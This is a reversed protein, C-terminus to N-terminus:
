SRPLLRSTRVRHQSLPSNEPEAVWDYATAHPLGFGPLGCEHTPQLGATLDHGIPVYTLVFGEVESSCEADRPQLYIVDGM